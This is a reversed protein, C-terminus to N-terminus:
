CLLIYLTWNQLIHTINNELISVNEREGCIHDSWCNKLIEGKKDRKVVRNWISSLIPTNRSHLMLSACCWLFMSTNETVWSMEEKVLNMTWIYKNEKPSRRPSSCPWYNYWYFTKPIREKLVKRNQATCLTKLLLRRHDSDLKQQWMETLYKTFRIWVWSPVPYASQLCVDVKLKNTVIM